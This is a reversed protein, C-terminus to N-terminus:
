EHTYFNYGNAQEKNIVWDEGSTRKLVNTDKIADEETAYAKLAFSSM